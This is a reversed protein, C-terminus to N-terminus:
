SVTNGNDEPARARKGPLLAEDDYDFSICPGQDAVDMVLAQLMCAFGLLLPLLGLVVTGATAPVSTAASKIWAAASWLAGWGML